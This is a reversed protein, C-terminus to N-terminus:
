SPWCTNSPSTRPASSTPRAGDPVCARPLSSVALVLVTAAAALVLGRRNRRTLALKSAQRAAADVLSRWSRRPSAASCCSSGTRRRCAPSSTTASAPRASPPPSRRRASSGSRPPACAPWSRRPAGAAAGGPDAVADADHRRRPPRSSRRRRRRAVGAITNRLIPLMSYLTLALLSPLFGLASFQLGFAATTLLSLASCCRISCRWCRSARSPRRCARHRGAPDRPLAALARRRDRAAPRAALGLVIASVSLLVHQGLYDPLCRSADAVNPDFWASM